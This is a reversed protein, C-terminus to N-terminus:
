LGGPAPGERFEILTAYVPGWKTDLIFRIPLWLGADALPVALMEVPDFNPYDRMHRDTFGAIRDLVLQGRYVQDPLGPVYESRYRTQGEYTVRIDARRRGEFVPIRVVEGREAVTTTASVMLATLPDYTNRRLEEPVPDRKGPSEEPEIEVVPNREEDYTVTVTRERGRWSENLVFREGVFGNETIRGEATGSIHSRSVLWLIGDSRAEFRARYRNEGIETTIRGFYVPFGLWTVQYAAEITRPRYRNEAVSQAQAVGAAAALWLGLCLGLLRPMGM